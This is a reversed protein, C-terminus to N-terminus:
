TIKGEAIEEFVGDLDLRVETICEIVKEPANAQMAINQIILLTVKMQKLNRVSEWRMAEDIHFM